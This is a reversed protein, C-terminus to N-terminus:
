HGLARRARAPTTEDDRAQEAQLAAATRSYYDAADDLLSTRSDEAARQFAPAARRSEGAHLWHEAVRAAQAGRAELVEAAKRHLVTKIPPPTTAVVTEGILDHSFGAGRVVQATELETWQALLAALGEGLMLAALELSFDGRLVGLVRALQLAPASLRQLRSAIIPGVRGPPPLNEPLGHKLEGMELLHKVTELIFLPNGATYRAVQECLASGAGKLEPLDLSALLEEVGATDLPRLELRFFQGAAVGQQIIDETEAPLEGKRYCHFTRLPSGGALMGIIYHGARTSADDVYQLDDFGLADYGRQIAMRHLEMKAQYLRLRDEEGRMPGPPEGLEPILRALERRVWDPARAGERELLELLERHTRSHTGYPVSRDGPRGAYYLPRGKSALFDQMLRTKGVGPEGCLVIGQGAEWAQELLAWERERGALVPPRLVSVPIPRPMPRSPKPGRTLERALAVTEPLPEVGLETRLLTRCREYTALAAGRDGAAYHLRMLMRHAEESHPEVELAGQVADLAAPLEGAAQLRGAEALAAKLRFGDLAARAARLWDALAEADDFELGALLQGRMRAAEAHAGTRVHERLRAADVELGESLSLLETGEVLSAGSTARLRRLLQRLNGRATSEPSDPWLLGALRARPTPGEVSLYALLGATRRELRQPGEVSVLRVGGLLEVRWTVGSVSNSFSM